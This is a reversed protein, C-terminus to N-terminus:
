LEYREVALISAYVHALTRADTRTEIEYNLNKYNM